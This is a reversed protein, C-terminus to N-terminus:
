QDRQVDAPFVGIVQRPLTLVLPMRELLANMYGEEAGEERLASIRREKEWIGIRRTREFYMCM